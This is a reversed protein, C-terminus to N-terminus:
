DGSQQRTEVGKPAVILGLQATETIWSTWGPLTVGHASQLRTVDLRSDRPRAAVSHHRDSEIAQVSGGPRGALAALAEALEFWTASAHGAAHLIGGPAAGARGQRAIEVLAAALDAARTPNGRQDRVVRSAEGALARSLIARVFGSHPSLLWATRVILADPHATLVRREGEAKSRGYVNLPAVPADEAYPAGGDGSFVYDTSLHLFLRGQVRCADALAAPAEANLAFAAAQDTEAADVATHAATNIVLDPAQEVLFPAITEPRVLDLAERGAFAPTWGDPWPTAALARALQGHRGLVLVRTV